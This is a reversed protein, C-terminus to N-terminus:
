WPPFAHPGERPNEACYIELLRAFSCKITREAECHDAVGFQKQKVCRRRVNSERRARAFPEFVQGVKPFPCLCCAYLHAHVLLVTIGRPYDHKM